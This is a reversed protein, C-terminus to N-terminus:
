SIYVAFSKTASFLVSVLVTLRRSHLCIIADPIFDLMAIAFYFYIESLALDSDIINGEIVSLFDLYLPLSFVSAQSPSLCFDHFFLLFPDLKLILYSPLSRYNNLIELSSFIFGSNYLFTFSSFIIPSFRLGTKLFM